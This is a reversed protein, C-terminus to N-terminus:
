VDYSDVEETATPKTRYSDLGAVVELLLQGIRNYAHTMDDQRRRGDIFHGAALRRLFERFAPYQDSNVLIEMDKQESKSLPSLTEDLTLSEHLSVEWRGKLFPYLWDLFRYIM